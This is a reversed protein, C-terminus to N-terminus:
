ADSLLKLVPELMRRDGVAVAQGAGKKREGSWDTVAGGAGEIIPVIPEIDYTELGAEIVCDIFGMALMAYAYCDYGYRVLKVRDEVAKFRRFEEEGFMEPSTTSLTMEGLGGCPRTRIPVTKGARALFSGEADGFFREDLYPQAIMGVSPSNEHRLGILVGWLPLGSIFARTGDIPDLVWVYEAGINEPGFEEGLIGHDPYEGNILTRMALEARRDADTVPDFRGDNKVTKTSVSLDSRFVPLIVEGASDALKHFFPFSIQAQHM